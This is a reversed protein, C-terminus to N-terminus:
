RPVAAKLVEICMHDLGQRCFACRCEEEITDTPELKIRASYMPRTLTITVPVHIDIGEATEVDRIPRSHDPRVDIADIGEPKVFRKCECQSCRGAPLIAM